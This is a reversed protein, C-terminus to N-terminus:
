RRRCSQAPTPCATARLQQTPRFSCLLLPPARDIAARNARTRDPDRQQPGPVFTRASGRRAHPQKRGARAGARRRQQPSKRLRGTEKLRWSSQMLASRHADVKCNLRRAHACPASCGAALTANDGACERRWAPGCGGLARGCTADQLLVHVSVPKQLGCSARMVCAGPRRTAHARACGQRRRGTM